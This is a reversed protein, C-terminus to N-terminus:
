NKVHAIQPHRVQHLNQVDNYVVSWIFGFKAREHHLGPKPIDAALQGYKQVIGELTPGAGFVCCRRRPFALRRGKGDSERWHLRFGRSTEGFM